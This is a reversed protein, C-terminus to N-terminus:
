ASTTPTAAHAANEAWNMTPFRDQGDHARLEDLVPVSLCGELKRGDAPCGSNVM